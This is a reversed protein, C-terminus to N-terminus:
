IGRFRELDEELVPLIGKEEQCQLILDYPNAGQRCYENCAMCTICERLSILTEM